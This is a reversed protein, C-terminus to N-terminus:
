SIQKHIMALIKGAQLVNNKKEFIFKINEQGICSRESASLSCVEIMKRALCEPSDGDVYTLHADYDDPMGDLKYCVIPTGSILYEILKYPFSYKTFDENNQRPNVLITAERQLKVAMDRPILGMYQIRSDTEAAKIIDEKAEGGGCIILRYNDNKILGFSTLLNLIGYKKTLTGTYLITKIEENYKKNSGSSDRDCEDVMGEVVVYPKNQIGLCDSLQETVLMFSDIYALNANISKSNWYKLIRYLINKNQAMCMYAPLDNVTICIHVNTNTKKILNAVNLFVPVLAYIILVKKRGDDNKLWKVMARKLSFQLLLQKIITLNFYGINRDMAGPAHSFEFDKIFIDKYRKPYSGVFMLNMISIPRGLNKELGEIIHWQFVNAANQVSGISKQYIEKEMHKPFIGGLFLIDCDDMQSKEM